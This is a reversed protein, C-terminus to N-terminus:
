PTWRDGLAALADQFDQRRYGRRNQGKRWIQLPIVGLPRLQGALFQPTMKVDLRELLTDSWMGKGEGVANLCAALLQRSQEPDPQGSTVLGARRAFAARQNNIELPVPELHHPNICRPRFCLHDLTLGAPISAVMFEYAFRHAKVNSGRLWFQGYSATPWLWCPGLEPQHAPPKGETVREWFRGESALLHPLHM